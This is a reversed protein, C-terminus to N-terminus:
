GREPSAVRKGKAKSLRKELMEDYATSFEEWTPIKKKHAKMFGAMICLEEWSLEALRDTTWYKKMKAPGRGYTANALKFFFAAQEEDDPDYTFGPPRERSACLDAIGKLLKAARDTHGRDGRDGKDGDSDTADPDDGDGKDRKDGKDVKPRNDGKDVKPKVRREEVPSSGRKPEKKGAPKGESPKTLARKQMQLELIQRDLAKQEAAKQEAAKQEAIKKEEEAQKALLKMRKQRAAQDAKEKEEVANSLLV